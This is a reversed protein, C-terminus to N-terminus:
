SVLLCRRLDNLSFIDFFDSDSKMESKIEFAGAFVAQNKLAHRNVVSNKNVKRTLWGTM